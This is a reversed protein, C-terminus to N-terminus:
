PTLDIDPKIGTADEILSEIAAETAQELPHDDDLNLHNNIRSCSNCYTIASCLTILLFFSILKNKVVRDIWKEM